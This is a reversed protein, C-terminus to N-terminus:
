LQTLVDCGEATVVLTHEFQASRRGDATVVTWDDDWEEIEYDGICLMPEITFCMGPEMIRTADADAHHPVHLPEHFGAGIGHGGYRRVVSYGHEHAHPEIARGIDGFPRGPRVAAIGLQLCERTVRILRASERDLKGVAYTANTDGHVGDLFITVDLNVLDGDVLKRDDPIGHCVVENVSACLSKPYGHFNLTSPYGGRAIYAAHAVGDLEDTTVGPRIRDACAALVEAAARGARRMAAIGDASMPAYRRVPTPRGSEAYDPRVIEPPVERRPSVVGKKVRALPVVEDIPGHCRKYKQGRGCSCPDNPAPRRVRAEASM